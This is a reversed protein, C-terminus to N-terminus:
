VKSTLSFLGYIASQAFFSQHMICTEVYIINKVKTLIKSEASIDLFLVTKRSPTPAQNARTSLKGPTTRSVLRSHLLRAAKHKKDGLTEAEIAAKLRTHELVVAMLYSNEQIRVPNRGSKHAECNQQTCAHLKEVAISSAPIHFLADSFLGVLAQVKERDDGNDCYELSVKHPLTSFFLKLLWGSYPWLRRFMSSVHVTYYKYMSYLSYLRCRKLLRWHCVSM